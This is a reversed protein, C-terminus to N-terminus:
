IKYMLGRFVVNLYSRATEISISGADAINQITNNVNVFVNKLEEIQIPHPLYDEGEFGVVNQCNISKLM